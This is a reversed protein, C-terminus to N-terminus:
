AKDHACVVKYNEDVSCDDDETSKKGATLPPAADLQTLANLVVKKSKKKLKGGNLLLANLLFTFTIFLLSTNRM